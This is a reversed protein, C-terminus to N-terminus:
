LGRSGEPASPSKRGSRDAHLLAWSRLEERLLDVDIRLRGSPLRVVCAALRGERIWRYLAKRSVGLLEAVESVRALPAFSTRKAHSKMAVESDNQEKRMQEVLADLEELPPYESQYVIVRSRVKVFRNEESM